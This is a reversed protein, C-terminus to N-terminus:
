SFVLLSILIILFWLATFVSLFAVLFAVIEIISCNFLIFVFKSYNIPIHATLLVSRNNGTSSFGPIHEM